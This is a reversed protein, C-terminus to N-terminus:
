QARLAGAPDAAAARRAPIFSAGLAVVMVALATLGFTLPDTPKVEFLLGTMIRMTAYAGLLGLAIGGVTWPLGGGVVLAIVDGRTAGLAVRIAIERARQAAGYAVVGYVGVLALGLALAAFLSLLTMYFRREATSASAVEDLTMVGSIPQDGDIAWVARQIGTVVAYPEGEARVAVSGLRVPYLDTQAASLYVQPTLDANKGSRRVEGVVGVITVRPAQENLAFQQGLPDRDGLFQRVFTQSVVAVAMTDKRDGASLLRGRVHPIGLTEFYGPSVAQFDAEVQAAGASGNLILGGGWGGRMPFRNAFAVKAVGPVLAIRGALEDFFAYRAEQSAYKTEPLRVNLTLVRETEFGLDVANLQTLSRILLGAAVALLLAAAVEGLVLLGRWRMVTRSASATLGSARLTASDQQWPQLAPLLGALVGSILSLAATMALVRPNLAVEGLRPISPPAIAVLADRTWIGLLCGATGGLIALTLGRGLMDVAIQRRSAGLARRIALEHRQGVARVFLLNALNVSAILLVLGVASWMVVLSREVNRVIDAALPAIVARYSKNTDPFRRALDASVSQLDAQAQDVTVGAKMRGVAQLEHLGHNTLVEQSYAAPRFYAVRVSSGYESLPRFSAPMVGVIEYPEGNLTIPKGLISPDALFRSRWLNDTLIVVRAAGPRDEEPLFSRGISPSVRLLSFLNWTVAEGFLQEPTGSKTLTMSVSAFGALDDFTRTARRYDVLNAPAVSLRSQRDDNVEWLSVLRETEAYPLPRLLVTEVVSFVATNAGIGIALTLVAITAFGPSRRLLRLTHRVHHIVM